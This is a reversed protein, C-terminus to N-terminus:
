EGKAERELKKKHYELFSTISEVEIRKAIIRKEKDLVYVVPTSYIDYFNRFNSHPYPGDWVNYWGTAVMDKEEIFEVWETKDYQTFLCFVKVNEDKLTDNLLNFLKPVETKCHGCNPEWFVLITYDADILHLSMYQEDHTQMKKLDPAINGIINPSIKMVRETLKSMFTSDVWPAKGSLYWMEAIHVFVEDYGMVKSTEFYNLLHAAVYRYMLTDGADYAYSIIRDTEFKLSDPIPVVVKSFFYTLKGEFVPTRLLGSEGFDINDFYHDKYFQWQFSSDTINGEEDVPADPVDVETMSKLVKSFFDDPNDSVMKDMVAQREKANDKLNEKLIDLSDKDEPHLKIEKDIDMRAKNLEAMKRQYENFVVNEKCGKVKMNTVYNATDTELSFETDDGVLFEFYTMRLSPLVAIYIGKELPDNSVFSAWGKEDIRATDIVFKKAGFHHGIMITTDNVGNVKIKINYQAKANFASFVLLFAIFFSFFRIM